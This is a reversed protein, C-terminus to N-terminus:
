LWVGLLVCFVCIWWAGVWYGDEDMELMGGGGESRVGGMGGIEVGVWFYRM